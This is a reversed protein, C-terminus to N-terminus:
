QLNLEYIEEIITINLSINDDLENSIKSLYESYIDLIKDIIIYNKSNIGSSIYENLINLLENKNRFIHM